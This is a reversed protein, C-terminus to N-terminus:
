APSERLALDLAALGLVKSGISLCREDIDFQSSHLPRATPGAPGDDPSVCGLRAIVGPILEQYFAFDEGGMSPLDIWTVGDLGLVRRGTAALRDTLDPDNDTAPCWNGFDLSVDCGTSEAVGAVIAQMKQQMIRTDDALTTRLTGTLTARDPIANFTTGAHISGVTLNAPHRSDITRPVLQYFQDIVAVAAPIPDVAENPRASHGSTGRVTVQFSKFSATIPGTRVGLRGTSLTPDVHLALIAAVGSIAGQEIVSRAGTASEEAPQFILRLNHPANLQQLSDLHEHLALGAGLVMASHADHGCAHCLGPRTSAYPVQKDDNVRVCDLEARLAIFSNARPNLPLDVLLGVDDRLLQPHLGAESVAEAIARTTEREEGSPEPTAHLLHRLRTLRDARDDISRAISMWLDDPWPPHDREAARDTAPDTTQMSPHRPPDVMRVQQALSSRVHTGHLTYAIRVRVLNQFHSPKLASIGFTAKDANALPVSSARHNAGISRFQAQWM